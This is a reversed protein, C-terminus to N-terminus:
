EKFTTDGLDHIIDPEKGHLDRFSDYSILDDFLEQQVHEQVKANKLEKNYQVLAAIIIM